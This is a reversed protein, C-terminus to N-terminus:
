SRYPNNPSRDRNNPVGDGDRDFHRPASRHDFRDNRSDFRRGDHRYSDHRYYDGRAPEFHPPVFRPAPQLDRHGGLQVTLLPAQIFAQIGRDQANAATAIGGLSVIAVTALAISLKKM